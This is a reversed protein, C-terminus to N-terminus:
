GNIQATFNVDTMIKDKPLTKKFELNKNYLKIEFTKNM